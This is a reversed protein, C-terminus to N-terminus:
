NTTSPGKNGFQLTSIVSFSFMASLATCTMSSWICTATPVTDSKPASKGLSDNGTPIGVFLPLPSMGLAVSSALLATSGVGRHGWVFRLSAVLSALHVLSSGVVGCKEERELKRWRQAVRKLMLACVGALVLHVASLVVAGRWRVRAGQAGQVGRLYGIRILVAAAHGIAQLVELLTSVARVLARPEKADEHLKELLADTGQDKWRQHWPSALGACAIGSGIAAMSHFLASPTRSTDRLIRLLAVCASGQSYLALAPTALTLRFQWEKSGWTRVSCVAAAAMLNAACIWPLQRIAALDVASAENPPAVAAAARQAARGRAWEPTRSLAKEAAPKKEPDRRKNRGRSWEPAKSITSPPSKSIATSPLPSTNDEPKAKRWPASKLVGDDTGKRSPGREWPKSM